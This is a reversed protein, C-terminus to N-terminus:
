SEASWACCSMKKGNEHHGKKKSLSDLQWEYRFVPDKGLMKFHIKPLFLNGIVKRTGKEKEYRGVVNGLVWIVLFDFGLQQTAM